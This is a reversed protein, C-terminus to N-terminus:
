PGEMLVARGTKEGTTVEAVIRHQPDSESYIGVWYHGRDLMEVHLLAKGRPGYLVIEDVGYAIELRRGQATIRGTPIPTAPPLKPLNEARWRRCDECRCGGKERRSWTACDCESGGRYTACWAAHDWTCRRGADPVAACPGDHGSSRTCRWGPPAKECERLNSGPVEQADAAVERLAQLEGSTAGTFMRALHVVADAFGDGEDEVASAPRCAVCDPWMLGHPCPRTMLPSPPAAAPTVPVLRGESDRRFLGADVLRQKFPEAAAHDEATLPPDIAAVAAEGRAVAACRLCLTHEKNDRCPAHHLEGLCERLAAALQALEARTAALDELVQGGTLYLGHARERGEAIAAELARIREAVVPRALADEDKRAQHQAVMKRWHCDHDAM